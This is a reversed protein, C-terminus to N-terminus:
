DTEFHDIAQDVNEETLGTDPDVVILNDIGRLDYTDLVLFQDPNTEQESWMIMENKDSNLKNGQQITAHLTGEYGRSSLCSGLEDISFHKRWSSTLIVTPNIRDIIKNLVDIADPDFLRPPNDIDGPDNAPQLEEEVIDPNSSFYSQSNLVGELELFLVRNFSPEQGNFRTHSFGDDM